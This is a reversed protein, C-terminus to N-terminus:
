HNKWKQLLHQIFLTGWGRCGCRNEMGRKSASWHASIIATICNKRPALLIFVGRGRVTGGQSKGVTSLSRFPGGNSDNCDDLRLVSENFVAWSNASADTLRPPSRCARETLRAQRSNPGSFRFRFGLSPKIDLTSEVGNLAWTMACETSEGGVPLWSDRSQGTLARFTYM